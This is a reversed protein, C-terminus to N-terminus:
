ISFAKNAIRREGGGGRGGRRGEKEGSEVNKYTQSILITFKNKTDKNANAQGALAARIRLAIRNSNEHRSAADIANASDSPIKLVRPMSILSLFRM